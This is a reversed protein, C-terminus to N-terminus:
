DQSPHLVTGKEFNQLALRFVTNSAASRHETSLTIRNNEVPNLYLNSDGWAHLDSTGRLSQGFRAQPTKKTHHVVMVATKHSQQWGRLYDLIPSLEATLNENVQHIRTLPDLIVLRPKVSDITKYLRQRDFVDDIRLQEYAHIIQINLDDFATGLHYAIAEIRTRLSQLNHEACYLLVTGPGNVKFRRLAPKGSAVAVAISLALYTKGSKPEGGVIGCAQNLWLKEVLWQSGQAKPPMQSPAFTRFGDPNWHGSM